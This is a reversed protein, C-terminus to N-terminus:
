FDLNCCFEFAFLYEIVCRNPVSKPRDTPTVAALWSTHNFRSVPDWGEWHGNLQTILDCSYLFQLYDEKYHGLVLLWGFYIHWLFWHVFMYPSSFLMDDVLTLLAAGLSALEHGLSSPTGVLMWHWNNQLSKFIKLISICFALVVGLLDLLSCFTIVTWHSDLFMAEWGPSISSISILLCLILPSTVLFVVTLTRTKNSKSRPQNTANSLM